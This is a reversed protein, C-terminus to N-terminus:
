QNFIFFLISLFNALQKKMVSLAKSMQAEVTKVSINMKEAIEAYKLGEFRSMEFVMRCKEPLTNIALEIERELEKVELDSDGGSVGEEPIGDLTVHNKRDRLYNLSRNRVATYLYSKYNTDEPLTEFKGWVAIFAEHVVNKSEDLDGIYKMAFGCLPKFLDKFIIEFRKKNDSNM